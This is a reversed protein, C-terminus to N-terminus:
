QGQTLRGRQTGKSPDAQSEAWAKKVGALVLVIGPELAPSISQSLDSKLHSLLYSHMRYSYMLSVSNTVHFVAPLAIKKWPAYWRAMQFYHRSCSLQQVMCSEWFHCSALFSLLSLQIIQISAEASMEIYGLEWNYLSCETCFWLSQYNKSTHHTQKGYCVANLKEM